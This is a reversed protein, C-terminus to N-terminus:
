NPILSETKPAEFVRLSPVVANRTKKAKYLMMDAEHVLADLDQGERLSAVGFSSTIKIVRGDQLSVSMEEVAARLREALLMAKYLGTKPLVVLFEEGGYRVVFDGARVATRVMESIESLVQDGAQHGYTDNVRKFHDLDFMIVAIEGGHRSVNALEHSIYHSFTRRNYCGTLPDISAESELRRLRTLNEIAVSMSRVVIELIEHHHPLMKKGPKIYLRGELGPSGKLAYALIDEAAIEEIEGRPELSEVFHHLNYEVMPGKFDREVIRLIQERYTRPDIWIDFRAQDKVAFGFVDYDLLEKLCSSVEHLLDDVGTLKNINIVYKNLTKYDVTEANKYFAGMISVTGSVLRRIIGMDRTKNMKCGYYAVFM